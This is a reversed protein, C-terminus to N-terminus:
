AESTIQADSAAASSSGCLLAAAAVGLDPGQKGEDSRAKM